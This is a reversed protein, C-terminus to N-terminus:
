EAKNKSVEELKAKPARIAPASAAAQYPVLQSLRSLGVAVEKYPKELLYAQLDKVLSEAIIFQKEM